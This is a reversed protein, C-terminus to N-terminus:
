INSALKYGSSTPRSCPAFFHLPRTCNITSIGRNTGTKLQNKNKNPDSQKTRFAKPRPNASPSTANPPKCLQTQSYTPTNHIFLATYIFDATWSEGFIATDYKCPASSSPQTTMMTKKRVCVCMRKSTWGQLHLFFFLLFFGNYGGTAQPHLSTQSLM